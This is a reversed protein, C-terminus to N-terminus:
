SRSATLCCSVSVWLEECEESREDGLRDVKAVSVDERAAVGDGGEDDVEEDDLALAAGELLDVGHVELPDLRPLAGLPDGRRGLLHGPAPPLGARLEDSVVLGNTGRPPHALSPQAALRVGMTIRLSPLVVPRIQSSRVLLMDSSFRATEPPAKTM